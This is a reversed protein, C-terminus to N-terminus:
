FWVYTDNGGGGEMEEDEDDRFIFPPDIDVSKLRPFGSVDVRHPALAARDQETLDAGSPTWGLRLDTLTDRVEELAQQLTADIEGSALASNAFEHNWETARTTYCFIKLNKAYRLCRRLWAPHTRSNYLRLETVHSFIKLYRSPQNQPATGHPLLSLWNGNDRFFDWRQSKLCELGLPLPEFRRRKRPDSQIRIRRLSKFTDGFAALDSRTPPLRGSTIADLDTRVLQRHTSLHEPRRSYPATILLDEIRIGLYLIIQLLRHYFSHLHSESSEVYLRHILGKAQDVTKALVGAQDEIKYTELLLRSHILIARDEEESSKRLTFDELVALSRIWACRDQYNILDFLLNAMQIRSTLIIHKYTLPFAIENCLKSTLCLNFLARRSAWIDTSLPLGTGIALPAPVLSEFISTVIETPLDLLRFMGTTTGLELDISTEDDLQLRPNRPWGHWFMFSAEHPQARMDEMM